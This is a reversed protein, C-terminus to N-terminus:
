EKELILNLYTTYTPRVPITLDRPKLGPVRIKISIEYDRNITWNPPAPKLIQWSKADAPQVNGSLYINLERTDSYYKVVRSGWERYRGLQIRFDQNANIKNILGDEMRKELRNSLKKHGHVFDVQIYKYMDETDMIDKPLKFNEPITINFGLNFTRMDSILKDSSAQSFTKDGYFLVGVMNKYKNMDCKNRSDECNVIHKFVNKYTPHDCHTVEVCSSSVWAMAYNREAIPTVHTTEVLLYEPDTKFFRAYSFDESTVKEPIKEQIKQILTDSYQYFGLRASPVNVVQDSEWRNGINIRYNFFKRLRAQNEPSFIIRHIQMLERVLPSDWDPIVGVVNLMRPDHYTNVSNANVIENFYNYIKKSASSLDTLEIDSLKMIKYIFNRIFDFPLKEKIMYATSSGWFPTGLTVFGSVHEAYTRQIPDASYLSKLYWLTAVLGGQSHTILSIKDEPAFQYQNLKDSLFNEFLKVFLEVNVNERGTPYVFTDTVIEYSSNVYEIHQKLAPLMSGFTTQDGGLGHVTFIFHRPKHNYNLDQNPERNLVDKYFSQCGFSLFIYLFISLLKM